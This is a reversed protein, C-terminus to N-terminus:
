KLVVKLLTCSHSFVSSQNHNSTKSVSPLFTIIVTHACVDVVSPLFTVRASTGRPSLLGFRFRHRLRIIFNVYSPGAMPCVRGIYSIKIHKVLFESNIHASFIEMM